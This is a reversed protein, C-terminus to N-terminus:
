DSDGTGSASAQAIINLISLLAQVHKPNEKIQPDPLVTNLFVDAFTKSVKEKKERVDLAKVQLDLEKVKGDVRQIAANNITSSNAAISPVATGIATLLNNANTLWGSVGPKPEQPNELNEAPPTAQDPM